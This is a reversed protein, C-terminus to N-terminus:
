ASPRLAEMYLSGPKYPAGGPESDLAYAAWDPIRSAQATTQRVDVFGGSGLLRRLAYRDYMWHHVEGSRRFRGLRLLEYEDRGLLRWRLAERWMRPHFLLRLRRQLRSPRPLAVPPVPARAARIDAGEAGMRSCVFEGARVTPRLLWQRIEGGATERVAQDYLELMAWDYREAWEAEGRDARDLAELYLRVIAELDPVVVRLIGGPRLVRHCERLLATAEAPRLHELVHSHYVVDFHEEPFCIGKRLDHVIVGPGAPVCDLNTWAPHHRTGCGINLLRM